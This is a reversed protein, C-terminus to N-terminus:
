VLSLLFRMIQRLKQRPKSVRLNFGLYAVSAPYKKEAEMLRYCDELTHALPKELYIHKGAAMAEVGVDAHTFDPTTIVVADMDPHALFEHPDTFTRADPLQCYDCFKELRDADIDCIGFLESRRTGKYLQRAFTEARAGAGIVGIRYKRAM